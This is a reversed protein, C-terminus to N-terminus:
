DGHEMHHRVGEKFGQQEQGCTRNDDAHVVVLVHAVHAAQAFIHRNSPEGHQNTVQREDARRKEGTEVGFVANDFGHFHTVQGAAAKGIEGYQGAHEDGRKVGETLVKDHEVAFFAPAFGLMVVVCVPM